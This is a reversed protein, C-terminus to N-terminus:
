HSSLSNVYTWRRGTTTGYAWLGTHTTRGQTVSGYVNAVVTGGEHGVFLVLGPLFARWWQRGGDTTIDIVADPTVGGWAFAVRDSAVGMEGVGLPGQAADIHLAPGDVRWTKGGDVTGAPYTGNGIFALAYGHERDAFV